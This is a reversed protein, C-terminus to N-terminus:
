LSSFIGVCCVCATYVRVGGPSIKLAGGKVTEPSVYSQWSYRGCVTDCMCSAIYAMDRSERQASQSLEIEGYRLPLIIHWHLLLTPHNM